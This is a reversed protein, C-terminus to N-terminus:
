KHYPVGRILTLARYVQEVAVVRALEHPLTLASLSWRRDARELLSGHLGLPGGVVLTLRPRMWRELLEAFRETALMEGSRDLAVVTGRQELEAILSRAERERVHDDSFRGGSRVEAVWRAAYKVGFREIREAYRDHLACAEQDRPRGVSLLGIHV